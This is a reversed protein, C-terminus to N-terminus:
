SYSFLSIEFSVNFSFLYMVILHPSYEYASIGLINLLIIPTVPVRSVNVSSYFLVILSSYKM